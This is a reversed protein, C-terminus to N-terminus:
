VFGIASNDPKYTPLCKLINHLLVAFLKHFGKINWFFFNTQLHQGASCLRIAAVIAFSFYRPINSIWFYIM